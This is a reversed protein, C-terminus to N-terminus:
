KGEKVVVAGQRKLQSLMWRIAKSADMKSNRLLRHKKTYAIIEAASAPKKLAQIAKLVATAHTGKFEESKTGKATMYINTM